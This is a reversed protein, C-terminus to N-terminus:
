RSLRDASRRVRRNEVRLPILSDEMRRLRRQSEALEQAAEAVRRLLVAALAAGGALVVSPLIWAAEVDPLTGSPM